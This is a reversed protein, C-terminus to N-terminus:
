GVWDPYFQFYGEGIQNECEVNTCRIWFDWHEAAPNKEIYEQTCVDIVVLTGCSACKIDTAM